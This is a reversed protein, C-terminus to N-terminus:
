ESNDLGPLSDPPFNKKKELYKKSPHSSVGQRTLLNIKALAYNKNKFEVKKKQLLRFPSFECKQFARAAARGKSVL